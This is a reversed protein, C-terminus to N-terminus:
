KFISRGDFGFDGEVGLLDLVTPAIDMLAMEKAAFKRNGLNAILFVPSYAKHSGPVINHAPATTFLSEHIAWDYNAILLSPFLCTLVTWIYSFSNCFSNFLLAVKINELLRM